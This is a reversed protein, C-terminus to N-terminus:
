ASELRVLAYPLYLSSFGALNAKLCEGFPPLILFLTLNPPSPHSRKKIKEPQRPVSSFDKIASQLPLWGHRGRQKLHLPGLDLDLQRHFQTARHQIGFLPDLVGQVFGPTDGTALREPVEIGVPTRDLDARFDPAGLTLLRLAVLRGVTFDFHRTVDILARPAPCGVTWQLAIRPDHDRGRRPKGLLHAAFQGLPHRALDLPVQRFVM